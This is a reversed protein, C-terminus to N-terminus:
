SDPSIKKAHKARIRELGKIVEEVPIGPVGALRREEAQRLLELAEHPGPLRGHLTNDAVPGTAVDDRYSIGWALSEPPAYASKENSM